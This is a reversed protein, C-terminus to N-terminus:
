PRSPGEPLLERRKRAFNTFLSSRRILEEDLVRVVGTKMELLHVHSLWDKRDPHTATIPNYAKEFLLVQDHPKPDAGVFV